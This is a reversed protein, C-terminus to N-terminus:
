FNTIKPSKRMTSTDQLMVDNRCKESAQPPRNQEFLPATQQTKFMPEGVTREFIRSQAANKFLGSHPPRYLKKPFADPIRLISASPLCDSQSRLSLSLGFSGSGKRLLPPRGFYFLAFDKHINPNLLTNSPTKVQCLM